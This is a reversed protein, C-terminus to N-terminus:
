SVSTIPGSGTTDKSWFFIGDKNFGLDAYLQNIAELLVESILHFFLIM